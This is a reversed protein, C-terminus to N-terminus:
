QILEQSPDCEIVFNICKVAEDENDYYRVITQGTFMSTFVLLINHSNYVSFKIFWGNRNVPVFSTCDAEVELYNLSKIKRNPSTKKQM